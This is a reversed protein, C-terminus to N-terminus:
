YLLYGLFFWRSFWGVFFGFVGFFRTLPRAGAPASVKQPGWGLGFPGGGGPGLFLGVKCFVVM